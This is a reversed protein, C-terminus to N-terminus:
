ARSPITRGSLASRGAPPRASSRLPRMALLPSARTTPREPRAKVGGQRPCAAARSDELAAVRRDGAERRGRPRGAIVPSSGARGRSRRAGRSRRSSSPARSRARTASGVAYPHGPDADDRSAVVVVAAGARRARGLVRVRALAARRAARRRRRGPARARSLRQRLVKFVTERWAEPVAPDGYAAVFGEVGGTRLGDSLADWRALDNHEGEPNFAPTILALAAVRDGHDLALRLITHAGMSAGALVAREIGRDDLLGLLDAALEDYGYASPDPAPGLPRPRARRLRGGPPRRARARAVGDRRLPADRDARAAARRAVGEGAEEGALAAGGREVTFESVGPLRSAHDEVRCLRGELLSTM